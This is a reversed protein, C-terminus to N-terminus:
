CGTKANRRAHGASGLTNGVPGIRHPAQFLQRILDCLKTSTYFPKAVTARFDITLRVAM